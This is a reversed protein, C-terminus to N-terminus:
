KDPCSTLKALHWINITIVVVEREKATYLRVEYTMRSIVCRRVRVCVYAHLCIHMYAVEYGNACNCMM